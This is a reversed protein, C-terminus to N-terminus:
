NTIAPNVTVYSLLMFFAVILLIYILLWFFGLVLGAIAMGKGEEGTNKIQDLGIFGFIIAFIPALPVFFLIGFILSLLAMTNTKSSNSKQNVIKPKKTNSQTNIKAM